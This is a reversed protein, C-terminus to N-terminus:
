GPKASLASVRRAPSPRPSPAPPWHSFTAAPAFALLVAHPTLQVADAAGITALLALWVYRLM